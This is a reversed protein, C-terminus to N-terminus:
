LGKMCIAYATITTASASIQCKWKDVNYTSTGSDLETVPYSATIPYNDSNFCGGGVVRLGNACEATCNNANSCGASRRDYGGVATTQSTGDSFVVGSTKVEGAVTLKYAPTTTGIGVKGTSTVVMQTQMAGSTTTAFELQGQEVGAALGTWKAGISAQTKVDHSSNDASFILSSGFGPGVTSALRRSITVAPLIATNGDYTSQEFHAATSGSTSNKVYFQSNLTSSSGISVNGRQYYLNTGSTVFRNDIQGQLKGFAELITDTPSVPADFITFIDLTANRVATNLDQWTKDGSWYDSTAGVTITPEKAALSSSLGNIKVLPIDNDALNMKAYTVVGNAITPAPYTGTLDGGAAGSPPAGAGSVAPTYGLATTIDSNDLSGAGTVRGKSDITMKIYTGATAVDPLRADALIGTASATGLDISTVGGGAVPLDIWALGSTGSRSLVQGNSGGSPGAASMFYTDDKGNLSQANGATGAFHAYPVAGLAIRTNITLTYSDVEAYRTSGDVATCTTAGDTLLGSAEGSFVTENLTHNYPSLASGSGYRHLIEGASNGSSSSSEAFLICKDGNILDATIYFLLVQTGFDYPTGDSQTLTGEFVIGKNIDSQAVALHWPFFFSFIIAWFQIRM